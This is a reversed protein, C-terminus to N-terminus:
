YSGWVGSHVNEMGLFNQFFDQNHSQKPTKQISYYPDSFEPGLTLDLGDTTKM